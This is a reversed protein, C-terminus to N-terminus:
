YLRLITPQSEPTPRRFNGHDIRKQHYRQHFVVQIKTELIQKQLKQELLKHINSGIQSACINWEHNPFLWWSTFWTFSIRSKVPHCRVQIKNTARLIRPIDPRTLLEQKSAQLSRTNGYSPDPNKFHTNHDALYGLWSWNDSNFPGVKFVGWFVLM